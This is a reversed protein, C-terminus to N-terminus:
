CIHSSEFYTEKEKAEKGNLTELTDDEVNKMLLTIIGDLCLGPGWNVTIRM